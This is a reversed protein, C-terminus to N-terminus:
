LQFWPFGQDAMEVELRHLATFCAFCTTPEEHSVGPWDEALLDCLTSVNDEYDVNNYSTLVPYSVSVAHHVIGHRDRVRWSYSM